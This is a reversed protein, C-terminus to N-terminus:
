PPARHSGAARGKRSREGGFRRPQAAASTRRRPRGADAGIRPRRGPIREDGPYSRRKTDSVAPEKGNRRASPGRKYNGTLRAMRSQVAVNDATEAETLFRVAPKGRLVAAVRGFHRIVVEGSKRVEFTFGDAAAMHDHAQVLGTRSHCGIMAGRVDEM